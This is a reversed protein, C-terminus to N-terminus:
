RRASSVTARHEMRAENLATRFEACFLEFPGNEFFRTQLATLVRAELEDRRITLHNTCIGRERRGSCALRHTSYVVYSGGCEACRILGSFLHLPRHAGNMNGTRKVLQRMQGQRTKVEEWLDAPVIRLEPVERVIWESEPNVRSVRRRTHPNKLYRQRNWVLRGIYLENNLVGTGRAVHGHVTTPGWTDGTPGPVRENNLRKAIASPSMGDAYERFIRVVIAAETPEISREGTVVTAGDLARVVRYGYCIGGGSKGADIRGRLGRRTKDALDKLYLANMTGKLGVHLEGIEGEAITVIVVDAFSLKKFVAATDEQDRSLRDLAEALVGNFRNVLADRLLAQLGPRLITSGSTAADSYEAVVTWGRQIAYTRCERLQDAISAERQQASSFRAYLAVNM